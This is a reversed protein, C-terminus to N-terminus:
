MRALMAPPCALRKRQDCQVSASAICPALTTACTSPQGLSPTFSVCNSCQKGCSRLTRATHAAIRTRSNVFIFTALTSLAIPNGVWHKAWAQGLTAPRTTFGRTTFGRRSLRPEPTCRAHPAGNSVTDRTSANACASCAVVRLESNLPALQRGGPVQGSLPM